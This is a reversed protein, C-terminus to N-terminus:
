YTTDYEEEKVNSVYIDQLMEILYEIEHNELLKVETIDSYLLVDKIVFYQSHKSVLAKLLKADKQPYICM